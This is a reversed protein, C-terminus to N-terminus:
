FHPRPAHGKPPKKRESTLRLRTERERKEEQHLIKKEKM